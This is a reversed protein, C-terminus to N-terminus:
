WRSWAVPRQLCAGYVIGSVADPIEGLGVGLDALFFFKQDIEHLDELRALLLLFLRSRAPLIRLRLNAPGANPTSLTHNTSIRSIADRGDFPSKTSEM